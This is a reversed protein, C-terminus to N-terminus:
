REGDTMLYIGDTTIMLGYNSVRIGWLGNQQYQHTDGWSFQTGNVGLIAIDRRAASPFALTISFPASAVTLMYQVTTQTLGSSSVQNEM